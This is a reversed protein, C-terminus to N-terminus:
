KIEYNRHLNMSDKVYAKLSNYSFTNVGEATTEKLGFNNIIRQSYASKSVPVRYWRYLTFIIKLAKLQLIYM